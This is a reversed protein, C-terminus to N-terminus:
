DKGSAAGFLKNKLNELILDLGRSAKFKRCLIVLKKHLVPTVQIQSYSFQSSVRLNDQSFKAVLQPAKHTSCIKWRVLKNVM